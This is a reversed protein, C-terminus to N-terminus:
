KSRGANPRLEGARYAKFGMPIGISAIVVIIGIVVLLEVLTFAHRPKRILTASAAFTMTREM